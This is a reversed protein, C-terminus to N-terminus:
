SREAPALGLANLAAQVVTHIPKETDLRQARPWVPAATVHRAFNEFWPSDTRSGRAQLRARWTELDPADLHLVDFSAPAIADAFRPWFDVEALEPGWGGCLFVIRRGVLHACASTVAGSYELPRLRQWYRLSGYAASANGDQAAAELVFGGATWDKDICVAGPLCTLLHSALTSKGSGPPGAVLILRSAQDGSSAAALVAKLTPGANPETDTYGGGLHASGTVGGM